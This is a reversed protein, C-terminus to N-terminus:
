LVALAAAALGGVVIVALIAALLAEQETRPRLAGIM